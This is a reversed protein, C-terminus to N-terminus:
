TTHLGFLLRLQPSMSGVSDGELFPVKYGKWLNQAVHINAQDCFHRGKSSKVISFMLYM